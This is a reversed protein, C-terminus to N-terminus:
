PMSVAIYTLGQDGAVYYHLPMEERFTILDGEKLTVECHVNGEKDLLGARGDGQLVQICVTGPSKHAALFGNPGIESTRISVKAKDNQYLLGSTVNENIQNNIEPLPVLRIEKEAVKPEFAGTVEYNNRNM